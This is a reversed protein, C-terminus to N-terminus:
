FNANGATPDYTKWYTYLSRRHMDPGPRYRNEGIQNALAKWLGVPQYPRVPEGGLAPNLLGSVSLANDRVMEASLRKRPARALLLNDPDRQQLIQTVQSSQRYTSSLVIKKILAKIDYGSKVFTIALYDLLEPHSPLAGQNGFDEPTRVLGKGFLLQWFRNVAVRSTLPNEDHILWQALGLRNPPFEEPFPLIVGPTAPGVSDMPADYAGRELVYTTRPTPMEEM